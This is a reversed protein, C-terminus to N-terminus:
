LLPERNVLNNVVVAIEALSYRIQRELALYRDLYVLKSSEVATEVISDGIGDRFVRKLATRQHFIIADFGQIFSQPKERVFQAIQNM